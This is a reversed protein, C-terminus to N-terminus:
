RDQECEREKGMRHSQLQQIKKVRRFLCRCGLARRRDTLGHGTARVMQPHKRLVAVNFLDILRSTFLRPFDDRVSPRRNNIAIGRSRHM